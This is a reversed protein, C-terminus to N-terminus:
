VCGEWGCILEFDMEDQLTAAAASAAPKLHSTYNTARLVGAWGLPGDPFDVM